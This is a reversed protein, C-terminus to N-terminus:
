QSSHDIFFEVDLRGHLHRLHALADAHRKMPQGNFAVITDGRRLGAREALGGMQVEVIAVGPLSPTDMLTVGLDGQRMDVLVNRLRAWRRNERLLYWVVLGVGIILVLLCPLSITLFITSGASHGNISDMPGHALLQQPIPTQDWPRNILIPDSGNPMEKIFLRPRANEAFHITNTQTHEHYMHSVYIGLPVHM